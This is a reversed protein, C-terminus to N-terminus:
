AQPPDIPRGRSHTDSDSGPVVQGIPLSNSDQQIVMDQSDPSNSVCPHDAFKKYGGVSPTFVSVNQDELKALYRNGRMIGSRRNRCDIPYFQVVPFSRLLTPGAFGEKGSMGELVFAVFVTM